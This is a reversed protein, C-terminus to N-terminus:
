AAMTRQPHATGQDIPSLWPVWPDYEDREQDYLDEERIVPETFRELHAHWALRQARILVSQREYDEQVGLWEAIDRLNTTHLIQWSGHHREVMSLEALITLEKAVTPRSLGTARVIDATTPSHRGREVAEYVLASPAGLARFVTRIGHIKGKRWATAKALDKFQEPLGLLYSDARKGRADEIKSLM